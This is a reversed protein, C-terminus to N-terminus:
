RSVFLVAVTEEMGGKDGRYNRTSAMGEGGRSEGSRAYCADFPDLGRFFYALHDDLLRFRKGWM